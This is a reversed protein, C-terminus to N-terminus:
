KISKDTFNPYDVKVLKNNIYGYNDPKDDGGLGANIWDKYYQQRFERYNEGDEKGNLETIHKTVNAKQMILMWGGWSCWKVPALLERMEPNLILAKWCRNEEINSCLGVIFYYWGYRIKPVKIVFNKFIFVTRSIGQNNIKM